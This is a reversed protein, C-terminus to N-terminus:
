TMARTFDFLVLSQFNFDRRPDVGAHAQTVAAVAFRAAVARWATIEIDFNVDTGMAYELAFTVIQMALHRDAEARCGQASLDLNGSQIALCTDLNGCFRLAAFNETQAAFADFAHTGIRVPIQIAMNYDFCRRIQGLTLFFQQTFEFRDTLLIRPAM